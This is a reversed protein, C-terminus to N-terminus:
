NSLSLYHEKWAGRSAKQYNNHLVSVTYVIRTHTHLSKKVTLACLNQDMRIEVKLLIGSPFCLEENLLRHHIWFASQPDALHRYDPRPQRHEGKRCRQIGEREERDYLNMVFTGLAYLIQIVNIFYSSTTITSRKRFHVM